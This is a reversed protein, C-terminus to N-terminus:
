DLYKLSLSNIIFSYVDVTDEIIKDTPKAGGHGTGTDIRILFPKNPFRNGLRYQLQAIYKYSHLPVVRDDHDATLLLTAPYNTLRNNIESPINHLPSYGFLYRFNIEDLEPDGYESIWAHGITFKPFRLMDLLGVRCITCGFLDPRQNSVASVLLGGNSGGEIILKESKTYNNKILYEAAAIFDDFSNQKNLLKGSHHWRKGYEGGGRIGALAYIGNLNELLLLRKPDFRPKMVSNFGGYGYLLTPNEGNMMIDKKHAIFLPIQTGDKSKFFIQKTVFIKSDFNKPWSQQYLIPEFNQDRDFRIRFITSPILFSTISFFAQSDNKRQWSIWEISGLPINLMKILTGDILKRIELRSKVDHIYHCIIFTDNIIRVSRLVDDNHEPILDKWQSEQISYSNTLNVKILRYNSANRNTLIYHIPGDNSIYQFNTDFTSIIPQFSLKGNIKTQNNDFRYYYWAEFESNQKIFVNLYHGCESVKAYFRNLPQDPTEYVLIDYQQDTGIRHYYLKNFKNVTTETGDIRSENPYRSYFFGKNDITWSATSFKINTLTENLDTNNEVSRIRIINWDSGSEDLGYACWKGDYSFSTLALSISGNPSMENTDIFIELNEPDDPGNLMKYLIYHNQLGQNKLLFYNPGRKFPGDIRDYELSQKFKKRIKDRYTCSQLYPFTISNQEQIFKKTEDSTTNELWRYPDHIKIGFFEDQITENRRVNPYEFLKKVNQGKTTMISSLFLITIFIIFKPYMNSM